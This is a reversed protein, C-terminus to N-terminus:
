KRKKEVLLGRKGKAQKLVGKSKLIAIARGKPVKASKKIKSIIREERQDNDIYKSM